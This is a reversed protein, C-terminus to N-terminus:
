KATGGGASADMAAPPEVREPKVWRDCWEVMEAVVHLVSERAQYGHDEGPLMVLRATGGNGKVAQYMRESQLPFTGSNSDEEGHILLLPEEIEHAVFFPSLSVYPEAAEWLTRRESQFGFPTLTRNYAGSRAIGARFLDCHALLNATMFAGYSHGGVAVREPDAVGRAVAADIAAQESAVIQAVFTDNMTEPDGVVPMTAGDLVAYGQTLLLLHSPGRIRTFRLPSSSVQGATSPDTFELPYAWVFLPLRTGPEYGAPLYLTASLEVGDDRAYKLLEQTIGRIEPTPDAFDTLATVTQAPLDRLQYDPPDSPSESSTLIALGEAGHRALGAYTEYRGEAAQWLRESAGDLACRDFFPRPGTSSHGQGARYIHAGDELVVRTGLESTVTVPSGPDGYRDNRSRDEVVLPEADPKTLDFLLTRVWRRDRDYEGALFRPSAQLWALGRARQRLRAIERPEGEFPAALAVWRDRWEAAVAPDGGDQAEAWVLTAGASAQWQVSRPGTRVGEMPIHEGMPVAALTRARTGDRKWLEITQPFLGAPLVYSFPRELRSVLLWAGDPSPSAGHYLGPKGLTELKGSAVDIRALQATALHEFLAESSPDSLLDQYTRLPTSTGSTEQLAPGAPVTRPEPPTRGQPVLRVVLSRGADAFRFPEDLVGNLNAALKRARATAAEAIWLDLGADTALTFAVHTSDPSWEVNGIRAGDPLEIRQLEAGTAPSTPSTARLSLARVFSVTRESVLAPDIRMGALGVWPRVVDAISPMAPREIFLMWRADPSFDVSPTPEADLIGVIEPPPLRYGSDQVSPLVLLVSALAHLLPMRAMM